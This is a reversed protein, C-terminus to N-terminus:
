PAAQLPDNAALAVEEWHIAADFLRLSSIVETSAAAQWPSPCAYFLSWHSSTAAPRLNKCFNCIAALEDGHRIFLLSRLTFRLPYSVWDVIQDFKRGPIEILHTPSYNLRPRELAESSNLLKSKRFQNVRARGMGPKCVAQSHEVCRTLERRHDLCYSTVPIVCKSRAFRDSCSEYVVKAM